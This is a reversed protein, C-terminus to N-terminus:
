KEYDTSLWRLRLRYVVRGQLKERLLEIARAKQPKVTNNSIGPVKSIERNPLGEVFGLTFFERMKEPLEDAARWMEARVEARIIERDISEEEEGASAFVQERRTLNKGSRLENLSANKATIFPFVKVSQFNAPKEGARGCNLLSQFYMNPYVM